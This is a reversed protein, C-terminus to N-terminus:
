TLLLICALTGMLTKFGVESRYIGYHLIYRYIYVGYIYVCVM